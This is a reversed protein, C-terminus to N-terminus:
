RSEDSSWLRAKPERFRVVCAATESTSAFPSRSVQAVKQELLADVDREDTGGVELIIRSGNAPDHLLWDAGEALRSRLRRTVRWSRRLAAVALAIAEAGEETVKNLDEHLVVDPARQRWRLEERLELGNSDGTLIAGPRHRRELAVACRFTLPEASEPAIGTLAALEELDIM